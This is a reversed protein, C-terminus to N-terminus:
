ISFNPPISIYVNTHTGSFEQMQDGVNTGAMNRKKAGLGTTEFHFAGFSVEGAPLKVMKESPSPFFSFNKGFNVTELKFYEESFNKATEWSFFIISLPLIAWPYVSTLSTVVLVKPTDVNNEGLM